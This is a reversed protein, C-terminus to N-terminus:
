EDDVWVLETDGDHGHINILIEVSDYISMSHGARTWEMVCKGTPYEAGLAVVGTGSVGSADEHRILRFRRVGPTPPFFHIVEKTEHNYPYHVSEDPKGDQCEWNGDQYHYTGGCACSITVQRAM